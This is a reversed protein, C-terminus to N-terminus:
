IWDRSQRILQPCAQKQCSVKGVARRQFVWVGCVILVTSFVYLQLFPLSYVMVSLVVSILSPTICM